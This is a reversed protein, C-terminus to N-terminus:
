HPPACPRQWPRRPIAARCRDPVHARVPRVTSGTCGTYGTTGTSGTYGTWGTNGTWGTSGTTGTTGTAGTTGTWGTTGTRGTTGTWGTGGTRGTSGTTGTAGTRGTSGTFGTAGTVGTSGTSGTTGTWGTPGTSGTNTSFGPAGTAGTWGTTGTWGTPGTFGSMGTPGQLNGIKGWSCGYFGFINGTQLNIYIDGCKAPPCGCIPDQNESFMVTQCKCLEGVSCINGDNYTFILEKDITFQVGNIYSYKTSPKCYKPLYICNYPCGPCNLCGTPSSSYCSPFCEKECDAKIGTDQVRGDTYYIIINDTLVDVCVKDVGTECHIPQPKPNINLSNATECVGDPGFLRLSM